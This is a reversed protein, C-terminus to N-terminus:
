QPDNYGEDNRQEHKKTKINTLIEHSSDIIGQCYEKTIYLHNGNDHLENFEQIVMDLIHERYVDSLPWSNAIGQLIGTFRSLSVSLRYLEKECDALNNTM